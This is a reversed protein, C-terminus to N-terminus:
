PRCSWGPFGEHPKQEFRSGTITAGSGLSIGALSSWDTASSAPIESSRQPWTRGRCAHSVAGTPRRTSGSDRFPKACSRARDYDESSFPISSSALRKVAHSAWADREKGSQDLYSLRARRNIGDPDEDPNVFAFLNSARTAGLAASTLPNLCEPGIVDGTPSSFAALTLADSHNLILQSFARSRSWTEPLLLDIAVGRAGAAFVRELERGVEEAKDPLPTPDASLSAEDLSVLVLRADPARLPVGLFRADVSRNELQQLVGMRWVPAVILPLLVAAVAALTMRRPIEKERWTRVRARFFASRIQGVLDAARRPRRDPLRELAGLLVDDFERPLAANITSPPPPVGSFHGAVVETASGQFPPRGVLVEYILIGFSYIDSARTARQGRLIEPAMYPVTGFCRQESLPGLTRSLNESGLPVSTRLGDDLGHRSEGSLGFRLLCAPCADLPSAGRSWEGGCRPCRHEESFEGVHHLPGAEPPTAIDRRQAEAVDAPKEESTSPNSAFRALGFDLIKVTQRGSEDDSVFVNGPKLDLHLIGREHAHDIAAAISEFIPLGQELPFRGLQRSRDALTSGELYEMVLYPLGGGRADIGFDTVNVINPHKLRGLTEAETRFRRVFAQDLVAILKLAFTKQLGLHHVRYVVGMGGQGLRQEVRYKGDLIEPGAFASQLREDDYACIEAADNWCRFCRPCEKM